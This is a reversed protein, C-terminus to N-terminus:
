KEQEIRQLQQSLQLKLDRLAGMEQTLDHEMQEAELKIRATDREMIDNKTQLERNLEALKQNEKTLKSYEEVGILATPSILQNKVDATKNHLDHRDGHLM